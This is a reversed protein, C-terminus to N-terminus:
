HRRDYYYLAIGGGVPILELSGRGISAFSLRLTRLGWDSTFTMAFIGVILQGVGYWIRCIGILTGVFPVYAIKNITVHNFNALWRGRGSSNSSYAPIWSRQSRLSISTGAKALHHRQAAPKIFVTQEAPLDAIVLTRTGPVVHGVM